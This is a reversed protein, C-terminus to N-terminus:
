VNDVDRAAERKEKVAREGRMIANNLKHQADNIEDWSIDRGEDRAKKLKKNIDEVASNWEQLATSAAIAMDLLAIVGSVSGSSM